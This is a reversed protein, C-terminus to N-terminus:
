SGPNFGSKNSGPRYSYNNIELFNTIPAKYFSNKLEPTLNLYEQVLSTDLLIDQKLDLSGGISEEKSLYSMQAGYFFNQWPFIKSLNDDFVKPNPKNYDQNTSYIEYKTRLM